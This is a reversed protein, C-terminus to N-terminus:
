RSTAAALRPRRVPPPGPRVRAISFEHVPIAPSNGGDDLVRQVLIPGRVVGGAVGADLGVLAGGRGDEGLFVANKGPDAGNRPTVVCGSIKSPMRRCLPCDIATMRCLARTIREQSRTIRFKMCRSLPIAVSVRLNTSPTEPVRARTSSVRLVM